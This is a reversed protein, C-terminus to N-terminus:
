TEVIKLAELKWKFLFEHVTYPQLEPYATDLHSCLKAPCMFSNSLVKNCMVFQADHASLDGTRKFELFLYSECYKWKKNSVV